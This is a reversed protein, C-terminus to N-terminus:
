RAVPVTAVSQAAARRVGNRRRKTPKMGYRALAHNLIANILEVYGMGDAQAVLVLDSVGPTLGPLPNIELIYPRDDEASLRLDVRAVDQCGFARFTAVALRKLEELQEAPLPAPCLYRPMDYLETKIRYDYLHAEEPPCPDLDIEMPPFVRLVESGILGVTLERGAIYREVLAPEGYGKVIYAVQERLSKENHVISRATIGM